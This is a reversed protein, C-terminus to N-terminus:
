APQHSPEFIPNAVPTMTLTTAAPNPIYAPYLHNSRFRFYSAFTSTGAVPYIGPDNRLATDIMPLAAANVM